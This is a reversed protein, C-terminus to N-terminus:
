KRLRAGRWWWLLAAPPLLIALERLVALTNHRWFNPLAYRRSIAEFVFANAFYYDHTLPWLAMVGIPPTTDSGLWDFAVHSAWSLGCALGLLPRRPALWVATGVLAAVVVSHTEMSHRGWLFDLDPACAAVVCATLYTQYTQYTQHPPDTQDTRNVPNQPRPALLLGIIAGGIAHGIPSPV